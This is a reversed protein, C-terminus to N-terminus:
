TKLGNELAEKEQEAMRKEYEEITIETFENVSRDVALYIISGYTNGDTLIKGEDAELRITKIEITKM